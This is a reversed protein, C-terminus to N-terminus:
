KVIYNKKFLYIKHVYEHEVHRCPQKLLFQSKTCDIYFHCFKINLYGKEHHMNKDKKVYPM